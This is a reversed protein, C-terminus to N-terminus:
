RGNPTTSRENHSIVKRPTPKQHIQFQNSRPTQFVFGRFPDFSAFRSSRWAFPCGGEHVEHEAGEHSKAAEHELRSQGDEVLELCVRKIQGQSQRAPLKL